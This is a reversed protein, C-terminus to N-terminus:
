LGIEVTGDARVTGEVVRRSSLNRVPIREGAAGDAMATGRMQVSFGDVGAVLNVVQGRQVVRSGRLMATSIVQGAAVARTLVRREALAGDTLYDGGLLTTDRRELVLDAATLLTDRAMPRAAVVVERALTLRVPVYITWPSTGGCRIGVTMRNGPAAVAPTFGEVPRDCLPLRLRPDLPGAEVGAAGANLRQGLDFRDIAFQRAADLISDHSQVATEGVAAHGTALLSLLLAARPFRERFLAILGMNKM